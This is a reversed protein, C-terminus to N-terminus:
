RFSDRLTKRQRDVFIRTTVPKATAVGRAWPHRGKSTAVTWRRFRKGGDAEWMMVAKGGLGLGRAVSQQRARRSNAGKRGRRTVGRVSDHAVAKKPTVIHEKVDNEVLQWPGRARVYAQWEDGRREVKARVLLKQQRGGRNLGSLLQDGGTAARVNATLIRETRSSATRMAERDTSDLRKVYRDFKRTLEAVSRSTGM